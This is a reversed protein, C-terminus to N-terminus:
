EQVKPEQIDLYSGVTAKYFVKVYSIALDGPLVMLFSKKGDARAVWLVQGSPWSLGLWASDEWAKCLGVRRQLQHM